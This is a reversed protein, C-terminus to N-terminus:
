SSQQPGGPPAPAGSGSGSGPDGSGHHHHHHHGIHVGLLSSLRERKSRKAKTAPPSEPSPPREGSPVPDHGKDKDRGRISGSMSSSGSVSRQKAHGGKESMSTMRAHPHSPSGGSIFGFPNTPHPHLSSASSFTHPPSPQQAGRTSRARKVDVDDVVERLHTLEDNKLNVERQMSESKAAEDKLAQELEHVRRTSDSLADQYTTRDQEAKITCDAHENSLADVQSRLRTALGDVEEYRARLSDMEQMLSEVQQTHKNKEHAIEHEEHEEVIKKAQLLGQKEAELSHILEQVEVQKRNFEQSRAEAAILRSRMEQILSHADTKLAEVETLQERLAANEAVVERYRADTEENEGELQDLRTELATIRAHYIGINAEDGIRSLRHNSSARLEDLHAETEELLKAQSELEHRLRELERANGQRESELQQTQSIIRERLKLSNSKSV